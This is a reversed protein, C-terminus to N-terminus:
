IDSFSKKKFFYINLYTVINCLFVLSKKVKLLKSNEHSVHSSDM